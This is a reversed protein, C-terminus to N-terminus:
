LSFAGLESQQALTDRDREALGKGWRGAPLSPGQRTAHDGLPQESSGKQRRRVPGRVSWRRSSERSRGEGALSGRSVTPPSSPSAALAFSGERLHPQHPAPPPLGLARTRSAALAQRQVSPRPSSWFWRSVRGPLRGRRAPRHASLLNKCPNSEEQGQQWRVARNPVAQLLECCAAVTSKEHETAALSGGRKTLPPCPEPIPLPSPEEPRPRCTPVQVRSRSAPAVARAVAEGQSLACLLSSPRNTCLAATHQWLPVRSTPVLRLTRSVGGRTHKCVAPLARPSSKLSPLLLSTCATQQPGAGFEAGLTHPDGSLLVPVGQLCRAETTLHISIGSVEKIPTERAM